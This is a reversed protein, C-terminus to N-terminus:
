SDTKNYLFLDSLLFNVKPSNDDEDNDDKRAVEEEAANMSFVEILQKQIDLYISPHSWIWLTRISNSSSSDLEPRWMFRCPGICGFPFKDAEYLVIKGEFQGKIHM